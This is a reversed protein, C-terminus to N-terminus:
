IEQGHECINIKEKAHSIKKWSLMEECKSHLNIEHVGLNPIGDEWSHTATNKSGEVTQSLDNETQM